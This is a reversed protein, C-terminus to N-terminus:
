KTDLTKYLNMLRLSYSKVILHKSILNKLLFLFDDAESNFYEFGKLDLGWVRGRERCIFDRLYKRNIKNNTYRKQALTRNIIIFSKKKNECM